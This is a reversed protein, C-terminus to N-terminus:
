PKKVDYGQPKAKLAIYGQCNDGLPVGQAFPDQGNKKVDRFFENVEDDIIGKYISLKKCVHVVNGQADQDEDLYRCQQSGGWVFCVDKLQKQTLAM